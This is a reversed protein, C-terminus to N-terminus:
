RVLDLLYGRVRAYRAQQVWRNRPRHRLWKLAHPGVWLSADPGLPNRESRPAALVQWLIAKNTYSEKILHRLAKFRREVAPASRAHFVSKDQDTTSVAIRGEVLYPERYQFGSRLLQITLFENRCYWWEEDRNRYHKGALKPTESPNWILLYLGAERINTTVPPQPKPWTPGDVFLTAQEATVAMAFEVEDEPHMVFRVQSRMAEQNEKGSAKLVELTV